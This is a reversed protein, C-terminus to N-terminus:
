GLRCEDARDQVKVAELVVGRDVREAFRLLDIGAERHGVPAFRERVILRQPQILLDVARAGRERAERRRAGRALRLRRGRTLLPIEIGDLDEVALAVGGGAVAGIGIAHGREVRLKRVVVLRCREVRERQQRRNGFALAIGVHRQLGAGDHGRDQLLVGLMGAGRVVREVGEVIALM